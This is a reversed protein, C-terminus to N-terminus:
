GQLHKARHFQSLKITQFQRMESTTLSQLIFFYRLIEIICTCYFELQVTSQEKYESGLQYLCPQLTSLFEPFGKQLLRCQVCAIQRLVGRPNIEKLKYLPLFRTKQWVIICLCCYRSSNILKKCLLFTYSDHPIKILM